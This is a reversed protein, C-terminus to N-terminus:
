EQHERGPIVCILFWQYRFYASLFMIWWFRLIYSKISTINIKNEVKKGSSSLWWVGNNLLRCRTVRFIKDCFNM